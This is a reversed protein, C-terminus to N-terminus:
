RKKAAKRQVGDRNKVRRSKGHVGGRQCWKMKCEGCPSYGESPARESVVDYYRNFRQYLEHNRTKLVRLMLAFQFEDIRMPQLERLAESNMVRFEFVFM